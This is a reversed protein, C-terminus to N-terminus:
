EQADRNARYRWVTYFVLVLVGLVAVTCDFPTLGPTATGSAWFQVISAYHLVVLLCFDIGWVSSVPSPPMQAIMYILECVGLFLLLSMFRHPQDFDSALYRNYQTLDALKIPQQDFFNVFFMWPVLILINGTLFPHEPPPMMCPFLTALVTIVIGYLWSDIRALRLYSLLAEDLSVNEPMPTHLQTEIHVCKAFLIYTGFISAVTSMFARPPTASTEMDVWAVLTSTMAVTISIGKDLPFFVQFFDLNYPSQLDQEVRLDEHPSPVALPDSRKSLHQHLNLVGQCEDALENM